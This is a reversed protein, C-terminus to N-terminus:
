PVPGTEDHVEPQSLEMLHSACWSVVYGNGDLCGDCRQNTELVKVPSPTVSAKRSFNFENATAGKRECFPAAVWRLTHSSHM